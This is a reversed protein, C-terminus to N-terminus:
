KQHKMIIGFVKDSELIGHTEAGNLSLSIADDTKWVPRWKDPYIVTHTYDSEIGSQKQIVISYRSTPEEYERTFAAIKDLYSDKNKESGDDFVKFPLKYTFYVQSQNEPYTVMWNGFSTKGFENVVRTGSGVHTSQEHELSNLDADETYWSPSVRFSSEDPYVFGGSDLLESGEPVYVRIYNSNLQGLLSGPDDVGEHARTIIVTAIISGDSQVVAQHEVTQKINVDSKGGGINTNVVMLYDQSPSSKTIEGTWGYSRVVSEVRNDAFYTQIEKQNLADSLEVVLKVLGEPKINKMTDTIQTLLVSLVAKPTNNESLVGQTEIEYSLNKIASESDLMLNYENNEIPGIVRLLRELVSANIAIVGDVTTNRSKQYFWALKEASAKFDPFWNADQFEWRSNILQLPLPPKEYASLQGQLDYSGGGPIDINLIKGNQVDVVAFSGIFGGTPRLEYQNQFVILYRKFGDSGLMLELGGIVDSVNKIDSVLKHFLGRFEGFSEQYESPLSTQEVTDLRKLAESYQPLAGRIHTRLLTLRDITTSATGAEVASDIGKILYANGLALYHGAELLDQRSKIKTGIVPLVDLVYMLAKYEKDVMTRATGFSNLAANLDSEAQPLNQNFAAVTSSQLSLFANTSERVIQSTNDEVKHYFSLVPFPLTALTALIVMTAAFKKIHFSHVLKEKVKTGTQKFSFISFTKKENATIESEQFFKTAAVVKQHPKRPTITIEIDRDSGVGLQDIAKLIDIEPKKVNSDEKRIKQNKRSQVTNADHVLKAFNVQPPRQKKDAGPSYVPINKWAKELEDNKLSVVHQSVPPAHPTVTVSISAAIGPKKKKPVDIITPEVTKGEICTRANHGVRNCTACRRLPIRKKNHSFSSHQPM